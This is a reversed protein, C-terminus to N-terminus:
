HVDKLRRGDEVSWGRGTGLGGEGGGGGVGVGHVGGGGGGGKAGLWCTGGMGWGCGRWIGWWWEGGGIALFALDLAGAVGATTALGAAVAWLHGVVDAGGTYGTASLAGVHGDRERAEREQIVGSVDGRAGAGGESFSGLGSPWGYRSDQEM